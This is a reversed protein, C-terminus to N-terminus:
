QGIAHLLGIRRPRAVQLLARKLRGGEREGVGRTFGQAHAVQDFDHQPFDHHGHHGVIARQNILYRLHVVRNVTQVLRDLEVEGLEGAAAQVFALALPRHLDDGEGDIQLM